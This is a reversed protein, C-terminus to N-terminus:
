RCDTCFVGSMRSRQRPDEPGSLLIVSHPLTVQVHSLPVDWNPHLLQQSSSTRSMIGPSLGYGGSFHNLEPSCPLPVPPEDKFRLTSEEDLSVLGFKFDDM